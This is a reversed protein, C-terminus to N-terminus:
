AWPEPIAQVEANHLGTILRSSIALDREPVTVVLRADPKHRERYDAAEPLLDLDIGIMSVVVIPQGSSDSGAAAAPSALNLGDRPVLPPLAVLEAAGIIGPDDILTSRLWRERGIRALPHHSGARRHVLVSSMVRSLGEAPSADSHVAHAMERDAEGVGVEIIPGQGFDVVRGIELGSVEAVLLGYDDVPTAGSGAIVGALALERSPIDPAQTVLTPDAKTATAGDVAWARVIPRQMGLTFYGVRRAISGGHGDALIELRDLKHSQAWHLARGAARRDDEALYVGVRETTSDGTSVEATGGAGNPDITELTIGLAGRALGRLKVTLM